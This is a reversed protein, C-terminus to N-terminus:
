SDCESCLEIGSGVRPFYPRGCRECVRLRRKDQRLKVLRRERVQEALQTERLEILQELHCVRCMGTSKMNALRLGCLPCVTLEPVASIRALIRPGATSVDVDDGTIELSVRLEKAKAEVSGVSRELLEALVRAGLSAYSRLVKLEGTNWARPTM